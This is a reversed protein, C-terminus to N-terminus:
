DRDRDVRKSGCGAGRAALGSEARYKAGVSGVGVGGKKKKAACSSCLDVEVWSCAAGTVVDVCPKADTCGCVRCRLGGLRGVGVAVAVPDPKLGKVLPVMKGAADMLAGITAIQFECWDIMTALTGITVAALGCGERSCGVGRDAVALRDALNKKGVM